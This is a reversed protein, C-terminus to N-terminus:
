AGLAVYVNMEGGLDHPAYVRVEGVDAV